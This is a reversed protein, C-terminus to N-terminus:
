AEHGLRRRRLRPLPVPLQAQLRHNAEVQASEGNLGSGTSLREKLETYRELIKRPKGAPWQEFKIIVPEDGGKLAGERISLRYDEEDDAM